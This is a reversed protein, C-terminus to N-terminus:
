TMVKGSPLRNAAFCRHSPLGEDLAICHLGCPSIAARSPTPNHTSVCGRADFIDSLIM